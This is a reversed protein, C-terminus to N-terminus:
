EFVKTNNEFIEDVLQKKENLDEIVQAMDLRACIGLIIIGAVCIIMSITLLNKSNKTVGLFFLTVTIIVTIIAIIIGIVYLSITM